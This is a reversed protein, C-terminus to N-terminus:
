PEAPLSDVQLAPSGCKIGPDPLAGPSPFPLGSWYEQSSFGTSLLIQHDVYLGHARLTLWSKAVLGSGSFPISFQWMIGATGSRPTYIRAFSSYNLFM